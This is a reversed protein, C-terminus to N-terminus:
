CKKPMPESVQCVDSSETSLWPLMADIDNVERFLRFRQVLDFGVVASQLCSALLKEAYEIAKLHNLLQIASHLAFVQGFKEIM